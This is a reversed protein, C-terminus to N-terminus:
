EGEFLDEVQIEEEGEASETGTDSYGRALAAGSSKAPDLNRILDEKFLEAQRTLSAPAFINKVNLPNEIMKQVEPDTTPVRLGVIKLQNTEGVKVLKLRLDFRVLGGEEPEGCGPCDLDFVWSEEAGDGTGEWRCDNCRRNKSRAIVLDEGTIPQKFEHKAGCEPCIVGLAVMEEACNACYNRLRTNEELLAFMQEKGLSLHMRRGFSHSCNAPLSDEDAWPEPLHNYIIAGAKTTKPKGKKDMAPISYVEEMLTVGLAFQSFISVPAAKKPEDGNHERRYASVWDWHKKRLACGYCPQSRGAGCSCTFAMGNRFKPAANGAPIFHKLYEYWTTTTEIVVWDGAENKESIEYTYSQFPSIHVWVAIDCLDLRDFEGEAYRQKRVTKAAEDRKKRERLKDAFHGGIYGDRM